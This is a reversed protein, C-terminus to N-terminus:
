IKDKLRNKVINRFFPNPIKKYDFLFYWEKLFKVINDETFIMPKKGWIATWNARGGNIMGLNYYKRLNARSRGLERALLTYSYFNDTCKSLGHRYKYLRVAKRTRGLSKAIEDFSKIGYSNDLFDVESYTWLKGGAM